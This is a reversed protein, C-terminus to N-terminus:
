YKVKEYKNLPGRKSEILVASTTYMGEEREKDRKWASITDKMKDNGKSEEQKKMRKNM